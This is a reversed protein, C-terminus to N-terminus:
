HSSVIEVLEELLEKAEEDDLEGAEIEILIERCERHMEQLEELEEKEGLSVTKEEEITQFISDIVSELDPIIENELLAKLKAINSM